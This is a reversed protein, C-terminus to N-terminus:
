ETSPSLSAATFVESCSTKTGSVRVANVVLMPKPESAVLLISVIFVKPRYEASPVSSLQTAATVTTGSPSRKMGALACAPDSGPNRSRAAGRM